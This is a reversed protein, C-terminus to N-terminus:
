KEEDSREAKRGHSDPDQKVEHVGRVAGSEKVGGLRLEVLAHMLNSQMEALAKGTQEQGLRLSQVTNSLDAEALSQELRHIIETNMSRGNREADREVRRRLTEPLRVM